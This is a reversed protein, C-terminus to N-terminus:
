KLCGAETFIDVMNLNIDNCLLGVRFLDQKGFDHQIWAVKFSMTNEGMNLEISDGYNLHTKTTLGIGHKSVDVLKCSLNIGSEKHTLKGPLLGTLQKRPSFRKERFLPLAM